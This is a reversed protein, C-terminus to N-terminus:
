ACTAKPLVYFRLTAAALTAHSSLSQFIRKQIEVGYSSKNLAMTQDYVAYISPISRWYNGANQKVPAPYELGTIQCGSDVKPRDHDRQKDVITIHREVPKGIGPDFVSPSKYSTSM